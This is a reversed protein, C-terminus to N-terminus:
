PKVSTPGAVKAVSPPIIVPNQIVPVQNAAHLASIAANIATLASTHQVTSQGMGEAASIAAMIIPVLQQLGQIGLTLALAWIPM